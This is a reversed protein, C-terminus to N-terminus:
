EGMPIFYAESSSVVIGCGYMPKSDNEKAYDYAYSNADDTLCGVNLGFLRRDELQIYTVGAKQHEHGLVVSRCAKTIHNFAPMVGSRGKHKYLVDDIIFSEAVEWTDPFELFEENELLVRPPIGMSLALKKLRSDHNGVCIKMVPFAKKWDDLSKKTVELEESAGMANPSKGFRSFAYQDVIDGIHIIDTVGFIEFTRKLFEISGPHEFPIHTDPIVGIIRPKGAQEVEKPKQISNRFRSVHTAIQRESITYGLQLFKQHIEFTSYGLEVYEKILAKEQDFIIQM